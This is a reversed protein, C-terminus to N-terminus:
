VSEYCAENIEPLLSPRRCVCVRGGVVINTCTYQTQVAGILFSIQLGMYPLYLPHYSNCMYCSSGCMEQDAPPWVSLVNVTGIPRLSTFDYETFIHLSFMRVGMTYCHINEIHGAASWSINETILGGRM